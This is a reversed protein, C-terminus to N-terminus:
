TKVPLQIIFTTGANLKSTCSITGQHEKIINYTISLGLGTGQGPEKTTFFPDFIRTLDESNIGCGTDTVTVSLKGLEIKTQITITGDAEIAQVANALINLFAQHLKGENGTLKYPISVYDTQIEIRNKTENQLMVLCHDIITPIDCETFLLNDQRSYHNLSTVITAVRSIGVQIGNMLPSVEQIHDQLNEEFYTELAVIGGQIFNLPNNIEHAVGAALVGLSAMKESQILQAQADKLSLLTVELEERQHELIENTVTIEENFSKLEENQSQIELTKEKVTKELLRKQKRLTALRFRYLLVLSIVISLILLTRFWWTKWYPPAIFIKLSSIKDGWIGDANTAKVLFTYERPALNTYVAFRKNADTNNWQKDFGELKYAYKNKSPDSFQLASFEFSIVQDKYDLYITDTYIISKTLKSDPSIEPQQDFIRFDTIVIEPSINDLQIQDSFFTTVGKMSGFAMEGSKLKCAAGWFFQNSPLGDYEDYNEFKETKPNFKSLGNNTSLWLFGDDDELIAYVVNNALGNTELYCKIETVDSQQNFVIKNLGGGFTGAYLVNDKSLHLSIVRNESLSFKSSDNEQFNIYKEPMLNKESFTVKSLGGWTGVWMNNQKDFVICGSQISNNVLSNPNDAQHVFHIATKRIPDFIDLGNETGLWVRGWPDELIEKVVNNSISAPNDADHLYREFRFTGNEAVAKNLGGEWTGIWINSKSDKYVTNVRNDSLSNPNLPNNKFSRVQKNQPNYIKLGGNLIGIWIQSADVEYIERIINDKDIDETDEKELSLYKFSKLQNNIKMLGRTATGIWLQGFKDEFLSFIQNEFFSPNNTQVFAYNNFTQSKKDYLDLGNLTGIWLNNLRDEYISHISNASISNPNKPNNYFQKFQNNQEDLLNLGWSTGVWLNGSKDRLIAGISNNSISNRSKEDKAYHTFTKNKIDFRNLGKSNTGIWLVDEKDMFLCRIEDDAIALPSSTPHYHAIIKETKPDFEFLGSFTGLWLHGKSDQSIANIMKLPLEKGQSNYTSISKFRLTEKNFLSLGRSNTGIWINQQKDIFISNVFDDPISYPNQINKKYPIFSYGDFRNLGDETGVWLFGKDDQAICHVTNHSLGESIKYNKVLLEKRQAHLLAFPQLQILVVIIFLTNKM